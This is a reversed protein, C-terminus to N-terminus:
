RSVVRFGINNNRNDPNNNRNAVRCNNANNNWSGGLIVSNSSNLVLEGYIAYDRVLDRELRYSDAYAAHASWCRIFEGIKDLSVMGKYYMWRMGRLLQQFRRVGESKVRVRDLCHYFGIIEFGNKM